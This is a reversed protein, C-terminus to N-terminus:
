KLNKKKTEVEILVEEDPELPAEAFLDPRLAMAEELDAVAFADVSPVGFDNTSFNALADAAISADHGYADAKVVACIKVGRGVARRIIAANHILASRSIIATPEGLADKADM